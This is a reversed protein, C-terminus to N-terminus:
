SDVVLDVKRPAIAAALKNRWDADQPDFVFDAGLERLKAGKGANRSGGAVTLGMSKGLLVSAVGVGGSAGTVLLVQGAAPPAAPESWQTLAQWATLCVLPPGAMEEVQWGAPIPALCDVPVVVKESLTGWVSVGVDCRLIGMTEGVRVQAVGPGVA